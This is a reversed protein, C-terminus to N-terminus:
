FLSCALFYGSGLMCFRYYCMLACIVSKGTFLNPYHYLLACACLRAELELILSLFFISGAEAGRDMLDLLAGEAEVVGTGVGDM